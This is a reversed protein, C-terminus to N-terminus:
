HLADEPLYFIGPGAGSPYPESGDPTISVEMPVTESPYYSEVHRDTYGAYLKIKIMALDAKGRAAPYSRFASSVYTGPTLTSEIFKECSGYAGPNRWHDYGFYDSILLRSKQPGDSSSQPGRFISWPEQMFGTYNFYFCYTGILRDSVPATDPNDWDEGADWAEQLYEYKEPANSCFVKSADKIYSGLYASMSRYLQPSRKHDGTLMTPEQWNWHSGTGITAVSEPYSGDNDVTYCNLATVIERQNIMVLLTQAQRRAKGLVPVLIAMLMSMISIVVLLEVLTFGQTKGGNKEFNYSKFGM